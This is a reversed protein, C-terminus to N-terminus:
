VDSEDESPRYILILKHIPREFFKKTGSTTVLLRVKRVLGDESPFVETVRALPWQNRPCSDDRILVIDGVQSNPSVDNWKQRKQQLLCYERQWRRWFQDSLYQVRRWRRRSYLDPRSFNGPPPLVVKAKLTLLHNPTIPEPAEPDSLNDVTLPRSNVINEAETFLTRLTEDDLQQAHDDLLGALVSRVTRILREWIGGMHSACPVNMKFEFLDCDQTLLFNKVSDVNVEKLAAELENKAGIFNSGQDCRLERVKGRRNIFRRLANIFADTEMSNLTELHIARSSLCTFILGWRKLEKRGEKIYWPGFVDMGSYTFPAAPTVREEPLNAMKQVQAPARLKSCITCKRLQQSVSSRGNIIWYGAQRLANHTMGCGQHHQEQSHYQRILLETIHSKKPVVIPHKVEYALTAKQLRGGVRLMGKEVLFPDLRFLSSTQKLKENRTHANQRNQFMPDKGSLNQLVQIEKGFYWFQVSKFIVEEAVRMEEVTPPGSVPRSNYQKNPRNKEIMRQIHVISRKLRSLSSSHTFRELELVEPFAKKEKNKPRVQYSILVASKVKKVEADEPSLDPVPDSNVVIVDTEWLCSPGKIWLEHEALQKATTGRSAVDAPNNTSTVYHWQEPKSREHIHHVRNGVYTHFRKAENRIYGLVVSSDTYFVEVPHKYNLERKLMSAVNVSIVAATLERRPTSMPKLPAVRAKGMLFSIHVQNSGNVLRLYTVQGLGVDSADSFSHLEFVVPEGFGPPKVCRPIMIRELLPLESRWKEWRSHVHSPVPDDWDIGDHCLEQLLQKGVLIVPAVIGLPDYVSSVTSLIGRRTLPKDKLEIRFGITDSEICWYTGLSRQVPLVDRRLDLDKLDKSRDEASMAELVTKSNSAFKHLRLNAAACMAKTNRIVDIANEPTVFSKLGDDVYFDQQLFDAATQGFQERSAEATARLGFNAVGPSSIAGFLHANMRYECIQGNLDNDKFWLFRLFDRHEPNVHFSHFMQEIDCTVATEEKRFRSLVGVLGNMMDPGQLLHRNLSQDQFVASCDFVIRIQDPKKPHYIDFHPLYWVKGATTELEEPPVLSAHNKDFIKQMFETYHKLTKGNKLLKRKIGLLRKLCQERNNPLTVDDTKFPLPMEWNGMENKHINTTLIDCFRKDEVSESRETGPINRTHHLESYDLQMMERIQQPSTIDKIYHRIAFSIVSDEKSSNSTPVNFHNQPIERQITIRNVMACNASDERKHLCVPGIITWGFKYEEAWPEDEGGYIISLPQFASPINRGILIGIETDPHHRIRHAVEELHKWSRAIEPTAIDEQSAPITDQSYAYPVKIPKHLNDIDQIHLGNVKQTRVSNVGTITNIELNVDQGKVGLQELLTDTIFVDTSQDDLVAYTPVKVSPNDQHFVELLVIRACSRAPQNQGCVQSCASNAQSIDKKEHRTPDHLVTAHKQQCIKCQLKDRNCDKSIHKNSSVCKLWIRNKMLFDKREEYSLRQFQECDNMAHSKMRHYFCYTGSDPPTTHGPQQPTPLNSPPTTKLIPQQAQIAAVQSEKDVLNLESDTGSPSAFTLAVNSNRNRRFQRGAPKGRNPPTSTTTGPSQLIQPINTREAHYRVEEAFEEFSPFADKGKKRQLKLVKDSWKAKFWGPLKEVLAQIQSPYSLVKLSEIHKSAIKVQQLFDSFEELGTADNPGVKPWTTLKKEFETSIIAPNGYRDKLIKRAEQYASEPDQVLYQLQEVVKKAKGGLYQYLLHLKQRATVPASDILSEFANEWLFFKTKDLDNGEFVDPTAQPLRQLQTIKALTDTFQATYSQSVPLSPTVPPPFFAPPNGCFGKPTSPYYKSQATSTAPIIPPRQGGISFSTTTYVPSFPYM